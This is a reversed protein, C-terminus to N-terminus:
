SRTNHMPRRAASALLGIRANVASRETPSMAAESAMASLESLIRDVARERKDERMCDFLAAWTAAPANLPVVEVEVLPRNVASTQIHHFGGFEEMLVLVEGPTRSIDRSVYVLRVGQELWAKLTHLHVSAVESHLEDVIVVPAGAVLPLDTTEHSFEAPTSCQMAGAMARSITTKGSGIPGTV